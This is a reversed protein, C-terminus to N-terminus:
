SSPRIICGNRWLPRDRRIEIWGYEKAERMLAFGQAYSCIKSCLPRGSPQTFEEKDGRTSATRDSLIKAAAVREEKIGLPLPCSRGTRHPHPCWIWRRRAPGNGTGKQGATDLILEVM